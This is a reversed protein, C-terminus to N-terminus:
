RRDPSFRSYRPPGSPEQARPHATQAADQAGAKRVHALRGSGPGQPADQGADGTSDRGPVANLFWMGAGFIFFTFSYINTWVHVTCLTFTLGAFTFMWARRLQWLLRDRDFDRLGVRLLAPFVGAALLLFGPIGQQVAILLWFNDMSDIFMMFEPRVWDNLGLGFVPNAWVNVMGWKFILGRWYATHSSFTAYSMFVQVPSRNSLIDIVVYAIAFLGLLLWWRGRTRDMSWAWFILGIQLTAALLAGSSLSLFVCLGIAATVLYRRTNSYIGKLGVFTLSIAISCFLGYHIPHALMVRARELGMRGPIHFLNESRLGPIKWITEIIIPHGTLAEYVAFPLTACVVLVLLRVVKVFVGASRVYARALFYGGLFEVGVSGMQSVVKDPSNVALALGMWLIHLVFFIDTALFGDYKGMLWNVLLPIIMVLLFVRVSTMYLPGAYFHIPIVVALFYILVPIPLRDSPVARVARPAPQPALRGAPGTHEHAVLAPASEQCARKMGPRTEPRTEPVTCLM